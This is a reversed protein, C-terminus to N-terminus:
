VDEAAQELEAQHVQTEKVSQRTGSNYRQQLLQTHKTARGLTGAKGDLHVMLQLRGDGGCLFHAVQCLYM